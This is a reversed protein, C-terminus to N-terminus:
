GEVSSVDKCANARWANGGQHEVGNKAGFVPLQGCATSRETTELDTGDAIGTVKAGFIGTTALARIAGNFLVELDQL